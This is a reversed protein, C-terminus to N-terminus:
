RQVEASKLADKYEKKLKSKKDSTEAPAAASAGGVLILGDGDNDNAALMYDRGAMLIPQDETQHLQGDNDLYGLQRVRIQTGVTVSKGKITDLVEVNWVTSADDELTEAKNLVRGLFVADVKKTLTSKNNVDYTYSSRIIGNNARDAARDDATVAYASYGGILAVALTSVITIRKRM